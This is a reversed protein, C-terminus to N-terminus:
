IKDLMENGYCYIFIYKYIITMCFHNSHIHRELSYLGSQWLPFRETLALNCKRNLSHVSIVLTLSLGASKNVRPFMNFNIATVQFDINDM